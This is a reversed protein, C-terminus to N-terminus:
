MGGFFLQIEDSSHPTADRFISSNMNLGENICFCELSLLWLLKNLDTNAYPLSAQITLFGSSSLTDADSNFNIFLVEFQM